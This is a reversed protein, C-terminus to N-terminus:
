EWHTLFLLILYQQILIILSIYKISGVNESILIHSENDCSSNAISLSNYNEWLVFYLTQLTLIRNLNSESQKVASWINVSNGSSSNKCRM